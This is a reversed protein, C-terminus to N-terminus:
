VRRRRVTDAPTPGTYSPRPADFSAPEESDPSAEAVGAVPAGETGPEDGGAPPPWGPTRAPPWPSGRRRRHEPRRGRGEAPRMARRCRYTPSSPRPRTSMRRAPRPRGHPTSRATRAGDVGAGAAASARRRMPPPLPPVPLPPPRLRRPRRSRRGRDTEDEDEVALEDEADIPATRIPIPTAVPEPLDGPVATRLREIRTQPALLTEDAAFAVTMGYRAEIEALRVRKHNLVYLAIAGAVHVCIEAARRKAGEEEIARLVALASTETSRVHGTGGCHPCPTFSTEALSPRLRQRSMELLGFSSISGLQIRARDDKLADKMRKEVAANNRRSEMDIFDIVILGALDRLRM